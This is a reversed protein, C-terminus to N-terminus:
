WKIRRAYDDWDFATHAICRKCKECPEDDHESKAFGLCRGNDNGAQGMKKMLGCKFMREKIRCEKCVVRSNTATAGMERVYHKAFDISVGGSFPGWGAIRRDCVDCEAYTEVVRIIGM